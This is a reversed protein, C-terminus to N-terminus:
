GGDGAVDGTYDALFRGLAAVFQNPREVQPLHGCNPISILRGNKLRAAADRAQYSPLTMDNAGWVVLTPM